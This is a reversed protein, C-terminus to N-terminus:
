TKNVKRMAPSTAKPVPEEEKIHTEGGQHGVM